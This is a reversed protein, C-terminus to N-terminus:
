QGDRVHAAQRDFEVDGVAGARATLGLEHDAEAFGGYLLCQFRRACKQGRGGRAGRGACEAFADVRAHDDFNAGSSVRSSPTPRVSSGLM